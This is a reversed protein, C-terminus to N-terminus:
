RGPSRLQHEAVLVDYWQPRRDALRDIEHQGPVRIV